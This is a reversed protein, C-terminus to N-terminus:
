FKSVKVQALDVFGTRHREIYGRVLDISQEQTVPTEPWIIRRHCQRVASLVDQRKWPLVDYRCALAGAAYVLAMRRAVRAKVGQSDLDDIRALFTRMRKELWTILRPRNIRLEAVLRKLYGHAPTGYLRMAENRLTDSFQAPSTLGKPLQNWVGLGCGSDATIDVIRVSQGAAVSEDAHHGLQQLTYETSGL